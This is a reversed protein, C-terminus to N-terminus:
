GVFDSVPLSYSFIMEHELDKKREEAEDYIVQGNFEVGGPLKMGTFKKLNTGWQLKILTSAYEQLWRDGWVDAFQTPDVVEYAEVVIYEGEAITNWDIDLYLRNTHRNFRIPKKGVLIEEMLALNQMTMYYPALPQGGFTYLDNLAIQYNINFLGDSASFLGSIPFLRVVGIINEPLTIYKNTRDTTTVLYKYYLKQTGDFHYDAYYKLSEDIRDEVQEDAVNIEIVPAGLKRLCYNKFEQRTTPVSM